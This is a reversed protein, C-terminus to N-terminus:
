VMLIMWLVQREDNEEDEDADEDGNGHLTNDDEDIQEMAPIENNFLESMEKRILNITVTVISGVTITSDEEDLVAFHCSCLLGHFLLVSFPM